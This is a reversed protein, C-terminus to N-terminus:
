ALFSTLSPSCTHSFTPAPKISPFFTSSTLSLPLSCNPSLFFALAVLFGVPLPLTQPSRVRCLGSSFVGHFFSIFFAFRGFLCELASIHDFFSPFSVPTLNSDCLFLFLTDSGKTQRYRFLIMPSLPACAKKALLVKEICYFLWMETAAYGCLCTEKPNLTPNTRARHGHRVEAQGSQGGGRM